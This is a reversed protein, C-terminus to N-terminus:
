QDNQEDGEDEKSIDGDDDEAPPPVTIVANAMREEKESRIEELKNKAQEDDLEPQDKQILDIMTNLGLDKRKEINTM